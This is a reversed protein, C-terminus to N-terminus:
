GRVVLSKIPLALPSRPGLHPLTDLTKHPYTHATFSKLVFDRIVEGVRLDSVLAVYTSFEVETYIWGKVAM